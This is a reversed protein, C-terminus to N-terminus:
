AVGPIRYRKALEAKKDDDALPMGSGPGRGDSANLNATGPQGFLFGMDTKLRQVATDIGSVAGEDDVEITELDIQGFAVDEAKVDVFSLKQAGIERRFAERIQGNRIVGQAEALKTELDLIKGQRQEALKEFEENKALRATEADKDAKAKNAEYDAKAKDRAQKRTNGVLENIHAQQEPTFQVQESTQDNSAGTGDGTQGDDGTAGDGDGAGDGGGDAAFRTLRLLENM